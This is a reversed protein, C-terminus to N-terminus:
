IPREHELNRWLFLILFVIGSLFMLLSARNLMRIWRSCFEGLKDDFSKPKSLDNQSTIEEIERDLKAIERTPVGTWVNANILAVDLGSEAAFADLRGAVALAAGAGLFLRRDIM